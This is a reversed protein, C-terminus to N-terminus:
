HMPRAVLHRGLPQNFGASPELWRDSADVGPRTQEAPAFLALEALEVLAVMTTRMAQPPVPRSILYGQATDCGLDRLSQLQHVTEVGEAVLDLGMSQAMAIITRVLSRDNSHDAIGQVFARDIKIRQIPFQQLLSLSSYGTGFDDLALRVGTTRIQRLTSQALEPEELMMSETMELWLLHPSLGSREIAVRVVEAFAPDAIQRPSVNVSMTTTAPVTGDDIWARLERLSEELAWAGLENIIGTEEAIGIFEIPPVITGDTRRWRMLAEFGGLRGTVIDVIPQYYLHMEQRGIAGHLAHEVDMRQTLNSQMSEDFTVCRNRGDAKARHTAIDARRMLEEASVTRNRPSVAVGMSVTVFVANAAITFPPAFVARYREARDLADDPSRTTGDLIMFDDGAVRAVTAGFVEATATLRDAVAVLLQNAAEHGLTDNINKFRDLNIQIVSPHHESRWTEELVDSVCRVFRPRTLLNTLEDRSLRQTLRRQAAASADLAVYLRAVIVTILAMAGVVRVAIDTGSTPAVSSLLVGPGILSVILPAMQITERHPTATEDTAAENAVLLQAAHPHVIASCVASLGVIMLGVLWPGVSADLHGGDFMARLTSAALNALAATTTLSMAKNRFKADLALDAAFTVIMISLPLYASAVVALLPTTGADIAPNVLLVWTGLGSGVCVALGDLLERRGLRRRQRRLLSLLAAVLGVGMVVEALGQFWSQDHAIFGTSGTGLSAIALRVSAGVVVVGIPWPLRSRRRAIVVTVLGVILVGGRWALEITGHGVTVALTALLLGSVVSLIGWSHTWATLLRRM